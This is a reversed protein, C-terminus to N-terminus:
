YLANVESFFVEKDKVFVVLALDFKCFFVLKTLIKFCCLITVELFNMLRIKKLLCCCIFLAINHLSEYFFLLFMKEFCIRSGCFNVVSM